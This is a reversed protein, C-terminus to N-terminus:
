LSEDLLSLPVEQTQEGSSEAVGNTQFLDDYGSLKIKSASSRM